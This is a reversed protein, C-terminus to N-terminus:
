VNREAHDVVDQVAIPWAPIYAFAYLSIRIGEEERKYRCGRYERLVDKDCRGKDGDEHRDSGYHKDGSARLFRAEHYGHHSKYEGFPKDIIGHRAHFVGGRM